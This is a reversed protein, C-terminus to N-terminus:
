YPRERLGLRYVVLSLLVEGIFFLMVGAVIDLATLALASRCALLPFLSEPVQDLGTAKSGARLNMRRKLFSSFLDGAMAMSGVRLGIQWGLGIMPAFASTVVVSLVIGRITKSKGFLPRGLFAIGDDVPWAFRNGLIDKALVPAGNALTLLLLLKLVLLLQIGV